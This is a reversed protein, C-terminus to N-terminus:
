IVGIKRKKDNNFALTNQTLQITKGALQLCTQELLVYYEMRAESLTIIKNAPHSGYFFM